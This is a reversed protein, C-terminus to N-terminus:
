KENMQTRTGKNSYLVYMHDSSFTYFRRSSYTGTLPWIHTSPIASPDKPLTTVRLQQALEGGGGGIKNKLHSRM